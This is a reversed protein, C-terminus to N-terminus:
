ARLREMRRNVARRQNKATTKKQNEYLTETVSRLWRAFGHKAGSNRPLGNLLRNGSFHIVRPRLALAVNRLTAVGRNKDGTPIIGVSDFKASGFAPM